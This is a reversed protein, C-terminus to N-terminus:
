FVKKELLCLRAEYGMFEERIEGIARLLRGEMQQLEAKTVMEARIDAIEGRVGAIERHIAM